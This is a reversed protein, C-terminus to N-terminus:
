GMMQYMMTNSSKSYGFILMFEAFSYHVDAHNLNSLASTSIRIDRDAHLQTLINLRLHLAEYSDHCIKMHSDLEDNKVIKIVVRM